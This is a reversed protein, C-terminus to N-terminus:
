GDGLPTAKAHVMCWNGPRLGCCCTPHAPEGDAFLEGGAGQAAVYAQIEERLVDARSPPRLAEWAARPSPYMPVLAYRGDGPHALTACAAEGMQKSASVARTRYPGLVALSYPGDTSWRHRVVVAVRNHEARVEDLASIALDAIEEATRQANEQDALIAAIANVERKLVM